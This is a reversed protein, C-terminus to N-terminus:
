ASDKGGAPARDLWALIHARTTVTIHGDPNIESRKGDRLYWDIFKDLRAADRAAEGVGRGPEASAAPKAALAARACWADWQDQVFGSSYLGDGIYNVAEGRNSMHREFEYREDVEATSPAPPTARPTDYAVPPAWDFPAQNDDRTSM